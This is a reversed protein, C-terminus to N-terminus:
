VFPELIAARPCLHETNNNAFTNHSINRHMSKVFCHIMAYAPISIIEEMSLSVFKTITKYFSIRIPPSVINLHLPPQSQNVKLNLFRPKKKEQFVLFTLSDM